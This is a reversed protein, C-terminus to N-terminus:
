NLMRVLGIQPDKRFVGVSGSEILYLADGPQGQRAVEVSAPFEHRTLHEAIQDRHLEALDKFIPNRLLLEGPSVVHRRYWV